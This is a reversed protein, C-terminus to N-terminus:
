AHSAMRALRAVAEEVDIEGRELARLIEMELGPDMPEPAPADVPTRRAAHAVLDGSMSRFVLQARGDGIVYRRRDRSGESRHPLSVSVSSALARVEVTVGGVVGLRFDGSVTEVRSERRSSLTGEIEVDGSISEVRLEDFRPAVASLDGSVTNAELRIPEDARLSVSSSIGRVRLEGAARELVMDGSVSRYSQRGHLGEARLDASVGDFTVEAGPPVEARVSTSVNPSGIGLRSVLSGLGRGSLKPENVELRGAGQSVVYRIREFAVDADAESEASIRFEIVVRAIDGDSARIEVDPHTLRLGFRGTPGIQHEIVQQRAFRAM